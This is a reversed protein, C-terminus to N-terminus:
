SFVFDGFGLTDSFAKRLDVNMKKSNKDIFTAEYKDAYKANELESSQIIIPLFPDERRLKDCFKIGALADKKGDKPFSVDTIVGLLHKKYKEYLSEAEEYDRALAIKPRGRMRLTQQHANLAETSFEHSQKLMFKYLIPLISSYYRIGDEVLLIVQVGIELVDHELNMRDEILKIISLLLDTNGLWCFVSDFASIDEHEMRKRIGHSFPTLIVMSIDPYLKKLRRGISFSDDDGLGPMCIILEFPMQELLKIGEEQTSVQWFRPPYRMSLSTYENFIKEDIRGDDELVFADYPNAIILVNYIRKTMLNVFQTDKFYLQNLNQKSLM